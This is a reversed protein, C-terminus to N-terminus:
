PDERDTEGEGAGSVTFVKSFGRQKAEFTFVLPLLAAWCLSGDM